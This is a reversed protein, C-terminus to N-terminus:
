YFIEFGSATEKFGEIWGCKVYHDLVKAANKKQRPKDDRRTIGAERFMDALTIKNRRKASKDNKMWAIQERLYDEISLNKNTKNLPTQLLRIDFSTFQKRERAFTFLPPERFLHVLGDTIQGDVYGTIREMPLLSADYKFHPYHYVSAEDYNDVSIHAKSMKTISDNIKKKANKGPNSTFGMAYHIDKLSFTEQGTITTVHNWLSSLAEYVRRDYPELRPAIGSNELENFNIDYTMIRDIGHQRDKQSALNVGLQGSGDEKFGIALQGPKLKAWQNWTERNMKDTAFDVEKIATTSISQLAAKAADKTADSLWPSGDGALVLQLSSLVTIGGIMDYLTAFCGKEDSRILWGEIPDYPADPCDEGSETKASVTVPEITIGEGEIQSKDTALLLGNNREGRIHSLDIESFSDSTVVDYLIYYKGPRIGAKIFAGDYSLLPLTGNDLFDFEQPHLEIEAIGDCGINHVTYCSAVIESLQGNRNAIAEIAEAATISREVNGNNATAVIANLAVTPLSATKEEGTEWDRVTARTTGNDEVM